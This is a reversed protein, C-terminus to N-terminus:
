TRLTISMWGVDIKYISRRIPKKVIRFIGSPPHDGSGDDDNLLVLDLFGDNDLDVFQAARSQGLNGLGADLTVETFWKIGLDHDNRFFTNYDGRQALLLIDLDGDNDYDGVAAGNGINRQMMASMGDLGEFTEGYNCQFSLRRKESIEIFQPDAAFLAGAGLLLAAPLRRRFASRRFM